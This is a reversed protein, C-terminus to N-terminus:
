AAKQSQKAAVGTNQYQRHVHDLLKLPFFLEFVCVGSGRRRYINNVKVPQPCYIKIIVKKNLAGIIGFGNFPM